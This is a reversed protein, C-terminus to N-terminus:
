GRLKLLQNKVFKPGKADLWERLSPPVCIQYREQKGEPGVKPGKAQHEPKIVYRSM